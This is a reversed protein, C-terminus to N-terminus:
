DSRRRPLPDPTVIRSADSEHGTPAIQDLDMLSLLRGTGFRARIRCRTFQNSEAGDIEAVHDHGHRDGQRAEAHPKEELVVRVTQAVRDNERSTNAMGM